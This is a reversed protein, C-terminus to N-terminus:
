SLTFVLAGLAVLGLGYTLGAAVLNKWNDGSLDPADFGSALTSDPYLDSNRRGPRLLEKEDM